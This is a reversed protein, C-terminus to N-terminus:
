KKSIMLIDATKNDNYKLQYMGSPLEKMNLMVNNSEVSIVRVHKGTVDTLTLLGKGDISGNLKINLIDSVPNPYVQLFHTNNDIHGIGTAYKTTIPLSAWPSISKVSFYDCSCRVHIYYMSGSQLSSAMVSTISVPTGLTPPTPGENVAYEYSYATNVSNWYLVAYNSGINALEIKPSRCPVPTRFSDLSWASSDNGVCLSRIHVYYTQGEQLGSIHATNTTTSIIPSASSPTSKSQDVLYQYPNATTVASWGIDTSNTDLNSVYFSSPISCATRTTFAINSWVSWSTPSCKNRVHLYYATGPTLGNVFGSNTVSSTGSAPAASTTTVAYDYGTSGTVATWNFAVSQSNFNSISLGTPPPCPPGANLEINWTAAIESVTLARNYLRFEDIKGGTPMGTSAAQGGIRFDTGTLTLSAPQAVTNFLVGNVYVRIAPTSNDYVIHVAKPTGAADFIGNIPVDTMGTGRVLLNGAGAILSSGTFARFTSGGSGGFIYNGTAANTVGSIWFFMTWPAPLNMVWNANISNSGTAAGNGLLATGTLGTSGVTAGNLTGNVSVRTGVNAENAVNGGFVTNFKFYILEPIPQASLKGGFLFVCLAIAISLLHRIGSLGSISIPLFSRKMYNTKRYM